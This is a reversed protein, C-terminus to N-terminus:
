QIEPRVLRARGTLRDIVVLNYNNVSNGPPIEAVDAADWDLAGSADRAYFISGRALPIVADEAAITQLDQKLLRGRSDFAVFPINVGAVTNNARLSPLPIDTRYNFAPVFANFSPGINTGRDFKWYPVHVGDPLSQWRKLYRPHAAGPQDGVSRFSFLAYTTQQGTLLNTKSAGSLSAFIAASAKDAPPMFVVLVSTREKIAYQRALGFDDVLQRSASIMLNGKQMGKMSPLSVAALIGIIAIVVLLELLTFGGALRYRAMRRRPLAPRVPVSYTHVRQM